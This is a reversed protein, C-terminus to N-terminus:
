NNIGVQADKLDQKDAKRKILEQIEKANVIRQEKKFKDWEELQGSKLILRISFEAGTYVSRRKSRFTDESLHRGASLSELEMHKRQIIETTQKLQDAELKLEQVYFNVESQIKEDQAFLSITGALVFLVIAFWKM